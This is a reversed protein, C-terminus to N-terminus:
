PLETAVRTVEHDISRHCQPCLALANALITQGGQSHPLKHHMHFGNELPEGCQECYGGCAIVKQRAQKPTFYRRPDNM